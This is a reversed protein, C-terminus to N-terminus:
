LPVARRALLRERIGAQPFREEMKRRLAAAQEQREAVYRDVEERHRLYYAVVAYVDALDLSPYRLVIEEAAAGEQFAGIVTELSVRTHGVRFAGDTERLPIEAAQRSPLREVRERADPKEKVIPM